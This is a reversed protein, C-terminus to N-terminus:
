RSEGIVISGMFADVVMRGAAEIQEIMLGCTVIQEKLRLSLGETEGELCPSRSM